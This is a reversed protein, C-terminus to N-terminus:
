YFSYGPSCVCVGKEIEGLYNSDSHTFFIAYKIAYLLLIFNWLNRVLMSIKESFSEMLDYFYFYIIGCCHKAKVLTILELM